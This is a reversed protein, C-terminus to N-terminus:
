DNPLDKIISYVVPFYYIFATSVVGFITLEDLIFHIPKGDLFGNVGSVFSFFLVIGSTMFFILILWKTLMFYKGFETKRIPNIITALQLYASICVGVLLTISSRMSLSDIEYEWHKHSTDPYVIDIVGSLLHILIPISILLAVLSRIQLLFNKIYKIYKM